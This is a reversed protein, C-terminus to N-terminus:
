PTPVRDPAARGVEAVLPAAKARAEVFGQAALRVYAESVVGRSVGLRAALSRSSPLRTGAHLAGLGIADRLTREVAARLTERPRREIHLWSAEDSNM